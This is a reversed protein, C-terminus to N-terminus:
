SKITPRNALRRGKRQRRVALKGELRGLWNRCDGVTHEWIRIVSYGQRRLAARVRNDRRRNQEIKRSWFGRRSIPVNRACKPCSHWFCGDVFVALRSKPFLFDPAGKIGKPHKEWGRIRRQILVEEVAIETSRNGRSKVKSMLASRQNATLPDASSCKRAM